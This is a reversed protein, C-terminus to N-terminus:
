TIRGVEASDGSSSSISVENVIVNVALSPFTAEKNGNDKVSEEDTRAENEKSNLANLAADQKRVSLLQDVEQAETPGPPGIRGKVVWMKTVAVPSWPYSIRIEDKIMEGNEGLRIIPLTKPLTVLKPVEICIKAHGLQEMATTQTDMCLPKDLVSDLHSLGEITWYEMPLGHFQVWLLIFEITGRDLGLSPRWKQLFLPQNGDHWPGQEVIEDVRSSETFKFLVSRDERYM